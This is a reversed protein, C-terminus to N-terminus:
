SDELSDGSGNPEIRGLLQLCELYCYQIYEVCGRHSNGLALSKAKELQEPKFPTSAATAADWLVKLMGICGHEAAEEFATKGKFKAPAEHVRAGRSLLLEAIKISGSRAALQLATAGGSCAPQEDIKAGKNLLLEVMKFSGIQCAKQLPTLKIGRKAPQHIDAGNALLLEVVIKSRTEIAVMLPTEHDLITSSYRKRSPRNLDLRDTGLLHQLLALGGATGETNQIAFGLANLQWGSAGVCFAQLDFKADIMSDLLMTDGKDIAKILLYGGFGEKGFPYRASFLKLLQGFIEQNKEIAVYLASEEAPDAGRSILLQIIDSDDNEIAERLPTRRFIDSSSPDAGRELLLKILDNNRSEVATRLASTAEGFGMFLLDEAVSLNGWLGALEMLSTGEYFSRSPFGLIPNHELIEVMVTRNQRYLAEGLAVWQDLPCGDMKKTVVAENDLLVLAADTKDNRIAILLADTLYNGRKNPARRLLMHIYDIDGIEAAVCLAAEFHNDKDDDKIYSLAGLQEIRRVLNEDQSRIAEALATTKPDFSPSVFHVFRPSPVFRPPSVFHPPPVFRLPEPSTTPSTIIDSLSVSGQVMSVGYLFLHEMTEENGSRIAAALVGDRKTNTCLFWKVLEYNGRRAATRLTKNTEDECEPCGLAGKSLACTCRHFVQKVVETAVKNELFQTVKTLVEYSSWCRDPTAPPIRDILKYIVDIQGWQIAAKIIEIRVKAGGDLIAQVLNIDVAEFNGHIRIALELAGRAYEEEGEEDESALDVYTKNVDANEALLIKVIGLHRFSAAVEIPTYSRFVGRYDRRTQISPVPLAGPPRSSSDSLTRTALKSTARFLNDALSKVQASPASKFYELLHSTTQTDKRLIGLIIAPPIDKLGAFGNAISFLLASRFVSDSIANNTSIDSTQGFSQELYCHFCLIWYMRLNLCTQTKTFISKRTLVETVDRLLAQTPNRSTHPTQSSWHVSLETYESFDIHSNHDSGSWGPYVSEFGSFSSHNLYQPLYASEYSGYFSNWCDQLPTLTNDATPSHLGDMFPTFPNFQPSQRSNLSVEKRERFNMLAQSLSGGPESTANGYPSFTPSFLLSVDDLSGMLPNNDAFTSPLAPQEFTQLVTHHTYLARSHTDASNNRGSYTLWEGDPGRTEIAIRNPPPLPLACGALNHQSAEVGSFVNRSSRKGSVKIQTEIGKRLLEQLKVHVARWEEKKLNKPQDLERFYKEYQAKTAKFGYEWDMVSQVSDDRNHKSVLPLKRDHWLQLITDKRQDWIDKPIRKALPSM